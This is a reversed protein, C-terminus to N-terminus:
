RGEWAANQKAVAAAHADVRQMVVATLGASEVAHFPLAGLRHTPIMDLFKAGWRKFGCHAHAYCRVSYKFLPATSAKCIRCIM